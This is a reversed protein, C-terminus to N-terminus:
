KKRCSSGMGFSLSEPTTLRRNCRRCAGEYLYECNPYREPHAVMVAFIEFASKNPLEGRRKRFVRVEGGVVFGFPTFDHTNDSGTLLSIVRKGARWEQDDDDKFTKVEFTRWGGTETNEITVCGNHTELKWVDQIEVTKAETATTM